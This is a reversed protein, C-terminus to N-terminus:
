PKGTSEAARRGYRTASGVNEYYGHVASVIERLTEKADMSGQDWTPINKAMVTVVYPKPLYVIGTDCEVGGMWGSKDAVALGASVADKIVGTKYMKLAELAKGFAHHSLGDGRYTLEMLGTLERPTSLNEVTDLDLGKAYMKRTLRTVEMGLRELLRNVNDMGVTDIIV